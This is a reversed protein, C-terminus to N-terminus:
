SAANRSHDDTGPAPASRGFIRELQIMDSSSRTSGPSSSRAIPLEGIGGAFRLGRGVIDDGAAQAVRPAEADVGGATLDEDAVHAEVAELLDVALALRQARPSSM